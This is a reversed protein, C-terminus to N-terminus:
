KPLFISTIIVIQIITYHAEVTCSLAVIFRLCCLVICCYFSSLVPCSFSSFHYLTLLESIVKHMKLIAHAVCQPNAYM